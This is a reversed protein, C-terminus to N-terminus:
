VRSISVIRSNLTRQREKEEGFFKFLNFIYSVMIKGTINYLRSVKDRV